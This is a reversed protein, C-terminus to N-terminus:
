DAAQLNSILNAAFWGDIGSFTQPKTTTGDRQIRIGDEFTELSILKSFPVKFAKNPSWFYVHKTTIALMGTGQLKLEDVKVPRGKFAGTRYYVGKTLRVSIGHSGGVYETRTTNQYFQVPSFTWVLEESKQFLFPLGEPSFRGTVPAGEQLNRVLAAKVLREVADTQKIGPYAANLTHVWESILEEEEASLVNDDLAEDVIQDLGQALLSTIEDTKLHARATLDPIGDLFPQAEGHDKFADVLAAPLDARAAENAAQCAPHASRFLGAKEGCFICKGMGHLKNM